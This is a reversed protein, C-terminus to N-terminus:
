VMDEVARIAAAFQERVRELTDAVDKDNRREIYRPLFLSCLSNSPSVEMISNSLVTIISGKWDERNTNILARMADSFGSVNVELQGDSTRCLLSGFTDANRGNGPNFDVVELECPAELKLKIQEKSTGDKWIAERTKIITGEKGQKLLSSYHQYAEKLSFVIRTDIQKIAPSLGFPTKFSSVQKVLNALRIAYKILYKGKSVVASLPVQDWVRLIPRENELFDGGSIIRNIIGNGTQRNAIVGNVEVLIEGHVQSNGNISNAAHQEIEPFKEIPLPSGQRTTMTVM